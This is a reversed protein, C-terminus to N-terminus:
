EGGELLTNTRVGRDPLIPMGPQTNRLDRRISRIASRGGVDAPPLRTGGTIVGRAASGTPTRRPRDPIQTPSDATAGVAPELGLEAPTEPNGRPRVNAGPGSDGNDDKGKEKGRDPPPTREPATEGGDKKVDSGGEEGAPGLARKGTASAEKKGDGGKKGGAGQESKGPEAGEKLEKDGEGKKLEDLAKKPCSVTFEVTFRWWGEKGPTAKLMEQKTRQVNHFCPHQGVKSLFLEMTAVSSANGTFEVVGEGAATRSAGDIRVQNMELHHLNDVVPAAPPTAEGGEAESLSGGAAMDGVAGEVAATGDPALVPEGPPSAGPPVEAAPTGAPVAAPEAPTPAEGTSTGDIRAIVDAVEWYVEHASLDPFVTWVESSPMEELRGMVEDWDDLPEGLIKESLSATEERLEAEQQIVAQYRFVQPTAFAAMLFAVLFALYILRGRVYKFDGEYAYEGQRFNIRQSDSGKHGAYGAAIASIYQLGDGEGDASWSIKLMSPHLLAVPKGLASALFTDVGGLAAGGGFLYVEEVDGLAKFCQRIDRVLPKFAEVLCDAAEQKRGVAQGDGAPFLHLSHKETQAEEASISFREALAKTLDHGGHLVIRCGGFKGGDAITVVTKRHGMDIFAARKAVPTSCLDALRTFAVAQHILVRPDISLTGFLEKYEEMDKRSVVSVFLTAGDKRKSMVMYDHISEDAQFPVHNELEFALVSDIKSREGFPMEIFRNLPKDAPMVLTVADGSIRRGPLLERANKLQEARRTKVELASAHGTERAGHVSLGMLPVRLELSKSSWSGIDLVQVKQAM